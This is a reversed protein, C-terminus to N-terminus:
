PGPILRSQAVSIHAEEIAGAIRDWAACWLAIRGDDHHNRMYSVFALKGSGFFTPAGHSPREVVEPLGLCHARVRELPITPV